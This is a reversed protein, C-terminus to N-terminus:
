IKDYYSCSIADGKGGCPCNNNYYKQCDFCIISNNEPNATAEITKKLKGEPWKFRVAWETTLVPEYEKQMDETWFHKEPQPQSHDVDNIM